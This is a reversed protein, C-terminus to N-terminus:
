QRNFVTPNLLWVRAFPRIRSGPGPPNGPGWPGLSFGHAIARPTRGADPPIKSWLPRDRRSIPRSDGELLGGLEDPIGVVVPLPPDVGAVDILRELAGVTWGTAPVGGGAEVGVRSSRPPEQDPGELATMPRNSPCVGTPAVATMYGSGCGIAHNMAIQLSFQGTVIELALALDRRSRLTANDPIVQYNSQIYFLPGVPQYDFRNLVTYRSGIFPLNSLVDIFGGDSLRPPAPVKSTTTTNTGPTPSRSASNYAASFVADAPKAAAFTVVKAPTIGALRSSWAALAAVAGGKSHGTVYVPRGPTSAAQQKALEATILPWLVTIAGAFGSHISGPFGAMPIPDAQVDSLWDRLTPISHLDLPLTGRFAVVFGDAIEGVLCADIEEPGGILVSPQRLFGAGALYVNTPDPALMTETGIIAYASGSACLLRGELTPAPM